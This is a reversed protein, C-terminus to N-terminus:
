LSNTGSTSAAMALSPLTLSSAWNWSKWPQSRCARQSSMLNEVVCQVLISRMARTPYFAQSFHIAATQLGDVIALILYKSTESISAAFVQTAASQAHPSHACNLLHEGAAPVFEDSPVANGPM